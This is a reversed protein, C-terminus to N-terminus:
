NQPVTYDLFHIKDEPSNLDVKITIPNNKKDRLFVGLITLVDFGNQREFRFGYILAQKINGYVTDIKKLNLVLQNKDLDKYSDNSLITKLQDYNKGKISELVKSFVKLKTSITDLKGTSYKYEYKDKGNLILVSHIEDYKKKDNNLNKYFMYAMNSATFEPVSAFKNAVESKSLKLEFYKKTGSDTSITEGISYECTGGYFDIVEKIGKDENDTISLFHSLLSTSQEGKHKKGCSILFFAILTLSTLKV